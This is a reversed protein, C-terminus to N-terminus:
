RDLDGGVSTMDLTQREPHPNTTSPPLPASYNRELEGGEWTGYSQPQPAPQPAGTSEWPEILTGQPPGARQSAKLLAATTSKFSLRAQKIPPMDSASSLQPAPLAASRRFYVPLPVSSPPLALLYPTPHFCSGSGGSLPLASASVQPSGGGSNCSNSKSCNSTFCDYFIGADQLEHGCEDCHTPVQASHGCGDSCACVIAPSGGGCSM